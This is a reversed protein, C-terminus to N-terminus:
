AARAGLQVSPKIKPDYGVVARYCEIMVHRLEDEYQREVIFSDHVPLCPIGREAFYDLVNLAIRSDIRMLGLGADSGFRHAIPKHYQLALEYIHEFSLGTEELADSLMRAKDRAKGTKGWPNAKDKCANIADRRYRANLSVNVVLKALERQPETTKDGGGWFAYPDDQYDIGEQAYVIKPHIGSYDLEITPERDFTMTRREIERLVMHGSGDTYFRGHHEWDDTFYAILTPRLQRMNTFDLQWPDYSAYEITVQNNIENVRELRRSIDAPTPDNMDVPLEM